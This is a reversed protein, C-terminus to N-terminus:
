LRFSHVPIGKPGKRKLAANDIKFRGQAIAATIEGAAGPEKNMEDVMRKIRIDMPDLMVIREGNRGGFPHPILDMDANKIAQTVERVEYEDPAGDLIQELTKRKIVRQVKKKTVPCRKGRIDTPGNYGWPPVDALYHSLINGAADLRAFFFGGVDGDGLDFPPSSSVYTQRGNSTIGGVSPRTGWAAAGAVYSTSDNLYLWGCAISTTASQTEIGLGYPGGPLVVHENYAGLYYNNSGVTAVLQAVTDSFTGTSTNLDGQSVTEIGGADISDLVFASETSNYTAEYNGYQIIDGADLAVIDGSFPDKKKLSAAGISNVNLTCAGTNTNAAKFSLKLGDTYSGPSIALSITIADTGSAAAYSYRQIQASVYNLQPIGGATSGDHIRGEKLTTDIDFIRTSLTRASQTATIAGRFQVDTTM